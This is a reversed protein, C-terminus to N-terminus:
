YRYRITLSYLQTRAQTDRLPILKGAERRRITEILQYHHGYDDYFVEASVFEDCVYEILARRLTYPKDRGSDVGRSEVASTATLRFGAAHFVDLLATKGWHMGLTDRPWQLQMMASMTACGRIERLEADTAAAFLKEANERCHELVLKEHAANTFQFVPPSVATDIFIRHTCNRADREKEEREIRVRDKEAAALRKELQALRDGQKRIAIRLADQGDLADLCVTVTAALLEPHWSLTITAAAVVLTCKHELLARIQSVHARDTARIASRERRLRHVRTRM